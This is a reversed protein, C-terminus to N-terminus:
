LHGKATTQLSLGDRFGPGRAAARGQDWACGEWYGAQFCKPTSKPFWTKNPTYISPLLMAKPLLFKGQDLAALQWAGPKGRCGTNEDRPESTEVATPWL